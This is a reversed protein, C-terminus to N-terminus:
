CSEAAPCSALTPSRVTGSTFHGALLKVAPKKMARSAPRRYDLLHAGRGTIPGGRGVSPIGGGHTTAFRHAAMSDASLRCTPFIAQHVPDMLLNRVRRGFDDSLEQGYTVFIVHHDPHRGLYWAPFITSGLLSKGHRPPQFTMFRSIEGREVAELGSVIREHHRALEFQPWLAVACCALDERALPLVQQLELKLQPSNSPRREM